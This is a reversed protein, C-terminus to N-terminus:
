VVQLDEKERASERSVPMGKQLVCLLWPPQRRDTTLQSSLIKLDIKNWGLFVFVVVRQVQDPLCFGVGVRVCTLCTSSTTFIKGNLYCYLLSYLADHLCRM